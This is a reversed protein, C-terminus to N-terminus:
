GADGGGRDAERERSIAKGGAARSAIIANRLDQCRDRLEHVM